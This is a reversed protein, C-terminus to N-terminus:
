DSKSMVSALQRRSTLDLKRFVKRLHYDVTNASIFLQAAIESNTAHEAALRAIQEEQPTLSNRGGGSRKRAHEGTARLEIAARRAFTEAGMSSFMNFAVRLSERADVRRNQRRLWEGFVLHSWAIDTAVPTQDLRTIADRYWEEADAGESALARCRSLLGLGWPSGAAEARTALRDLAEIALEHEGSRVAAEVALPLTNNGFPLQDDDFLRKAPAVAQRYRGLSIELTALAALALNVVVGAGVAQFIQSTALAVIERTREERGQWAYVSVNLVDGEPFEGLAVAIQSAEDHLAEALALNGVWMDYQASGGLTARLHNLDGRQRDSREMHHQLDRLADIDWLDCALNTGLVSWRLLGLASLDHHLLADTAERLLPVSKEFGATMRTGFTDLMLDTITREGKGAVSALAERAIEFQSTGQTLQSSILTAALAEILTEKTLQRDLPKLARAAKLLNAPVEGPVAEVQLAADLRLAQAHLIPEELEPLAQALLARAQKRGGAKFTAQAAALRRRGRDAGDPSLEAALSLFRTEAAYSGNSRARGASQELDAAVEEDPQSTAAARHWARRDPDRRPDTAGALAAHVQRREAPTAASYVVSRILPHRFTVSPRLLLLNAAEAADGDGFDLGLASAARWLLATDGTADAAALLLLKQTGQPLRTVQRLFHRELQRDVPLVDPLLGGVALQEAPLAKVLEVIALPNGGSENVIRKVAGEDLFSAGLAALLEGAAREDLGSLRLEAFGALSAPPEPVDRVGFLLVISEAYLRRGVFALVELSAQDLWQADDVVCILAGHDSAAEALLTLAALGVLFRDPATDGVEGFAAALAARQPKPLHALGSSWPALLRQLGAFGLEVEAEFGVVRAVVLDPASRVASEILATKGIGAEGRVVVVSSLGEECAQRIVEFARAQEEARGLLEPPVTSGSSLCSVTM